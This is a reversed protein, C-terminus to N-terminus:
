AKVPISFRLSYDMSNQWCYSRHLKVSWSPNPSITLEGGTLNTENSHGAFFLIDWGNPNAIAQQIDELLYDTTKGAQWGTFTVDALSTLAKLAERETQFNLGTDDGLIALIRMKGQRKVSEMEAAINAPTRVLRIANPAAFDTGIEWTEWPLRELELSDCTLFVDISHTASRNGETIIQQGSSAIEKRIKFLDASSLWHHFESTLEAEAQALRARWDIAPTAMAGSVDVRARLTSDQFEQSKYFDMYASQWSKYHTKLTNPFPLKATLQRGKGWSLEFVCIQEIHWVKLHFSSM